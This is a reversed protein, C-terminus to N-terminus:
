KPLAPRLFIQNSELKLDIRYNGSHKARFHRPYIVATDRWTPGYYNDLYWKSDAPCFLTVPGFTCKTLPFIKEIPSFAKSDASRMEWNTYEVQKTDQNKFVLAIEVLPFSFKNNHRRPNEPKYIRYVANEDIIKYGLKEFESRLAILKPEDEHLMMLDVDDDWAMLGKHRTAGMITGFDASYTINAKDLLTVTDQLIQYLDDVYWQELFTLEIIKEQSDEHQNAVHIDRGDLKLFRYKKFYYVSSFISICLLIALILSTYSALITLKFKSM